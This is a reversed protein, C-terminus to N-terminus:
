LLRELLSKTSGMGHWNIDNAYEIQAKVIESLDINHQKSANCLANIEVIEDRTDFGLDYLIFILIREQFWEKTNKEHLNTSIYSKLHKTKKLAAFIQQRQSLNYKPFNLLIKKSVSELVSRNEEYFNKSSQICLEMWNDQNLDIKQSYNAKDSQTLIKDIEVIEKILTNTNM